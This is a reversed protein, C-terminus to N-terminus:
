WMGRMQLQCAREELRRRTSPSTGQPLDGVSFWGASEIEPGASVRAGDVVCTEFVAVYDSKGEQFSSLLGLLRLGDIDIALGLEERIERVAAAEPTERKHVGGGPLTWSRQYRTRILLVHGNADTLIVKVGITTPKFVTWFARFAQHTMRFWMSTMWAVVTSDGRM